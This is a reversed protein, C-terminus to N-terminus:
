VLLDGELYSKVEPTSPSNFYDPSTNQELIKGQHIFTVDDALRKAQGIDHTVLVLKVGKESTSRIIEEIAQTSQPDLSASPEDLLILKPNASLARVMQLRQQEGGSLSRAPHNEFGALGGIAILEEIRKRRERRPVGAIGLSHHLNGFVSRRILVPRQFVLATKGAYEPNILVYGSNPTLLGTITRLLVSKGAGNPGMLVSIGSKPFTVSVDALIRKEGIQFKIASCIISAKQKKRESFDSLNLVRAKFM